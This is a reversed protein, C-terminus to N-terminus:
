VFEECHWVGGEPKPFLCKGRIDCTSCLGLFGGAEAASNTEGNPASALKVENKPIPASLCSEGSPYDLEDCNLLVTQPRPFVCTERNSCSTCIGLRPAKEEDVRASAPIIAAPETLIVSQNVSNQM